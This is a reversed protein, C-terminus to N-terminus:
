PQGVDFRKHLDALGDAKIKDLRAHMAAIEARTTALLADLEALVEDHNKSANAVADLGIKLLQSAASFVLKVIDSNLLTSIDM